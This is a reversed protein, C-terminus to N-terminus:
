GWFIDQVMQVKGLCKFTRRNGKPKLDVSVLPCEEVVQEQSKEKMMSDGREELDGETKLIFDFKSGNDEKDSENISEESSSDIM